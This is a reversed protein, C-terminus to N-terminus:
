ILVMVILSHILLLIIISPIYFRYMRTTDTKLYESSVVNCLHIPSILYGALSSMFIISAFSVDGLDGQLSAIIPYSLAIAGLNYGTVTGLLLPISIILLISPIAISNIGDGIIETAGSVEIMQRFIIIGFIALAFKWTLSKKLIQAYEKSPLKVMLYLLILGLFVGIIFSRTRPIDFFQLIVYTLIPILPPILYVLGQFNKQQKTVSPAKIIVKKLVIIGIIIMLFFAPINLIVLNYININAFKESCLLIMAASIPYIPFWIHRFWVNLYNKQNKNLGFKDGEKDILPASFLAGGPVPMLGYVAPIVGLTGGKSFFTRLSDILKTIARTEQMSKALVFIMTMLIALELTETYIQQEEFSYISAEIIAKPIDILEITRLSFFGVILAGIIISLGFNFKKRILIIMAIFAVIVGILNLM